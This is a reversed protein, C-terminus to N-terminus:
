VYEEEPIVYGYHMAKIDGNGFGADRLENYITSYETDYYVNDLLNQLHEPWDTLFVGDNVDYCMRRQIYVILEIHDLKALAGACRIINCQFENTMFSNTDDQQMLEECTEEINEDTLHRIGVDMLHSIGMRFLVEGYKNRLTEIEKETEKYSM